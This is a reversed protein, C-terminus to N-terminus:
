TLKRKARRKSLDIGFFRKLNRKRAEARVERLSECTPKLRESFERAWEEVPPEALNRQNTLAQSLTAKYGCFRCELSSAERKYGCNPCASM